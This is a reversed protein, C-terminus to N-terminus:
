NCIVIQSISYGKTCNIITDNIKGKKRENNLQKGIAQHNQLVVNVIENKYQM